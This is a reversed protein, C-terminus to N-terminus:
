YGPNQTLNPNVQIEAAPPAVRSRLQNLDAAADTLDGQRAEARILYLRMVVYLTRCKAAYDM